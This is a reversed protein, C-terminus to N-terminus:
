TSRRADSHRTDLISALQSRARHLLVRSENPSIALERSIDDHSSREICHLWFVEAQKGPLDILANRLRDVLESAQAWQAAYGTNAAPEAVDDISGEIRRARIRKRLRDIARRTAMSTLLAAWQDVKHTLSYEYADLLADQCCDLADDRHNLIRYATRWLMAGHASIITPWDTM